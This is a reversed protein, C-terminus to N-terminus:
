IHILSLSGTTGGSSTAYVLRGNDSIDFAAAGSPKVQVNEVLPVPNGTVELTSVDFPVPLVSGDSVAYVIHGTPVYHPSVGAIGLSTTEGSVLDLVFIQGAALPIGGTTSVFLM